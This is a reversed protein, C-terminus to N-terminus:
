DKIFFTPYKDSNFSSFVDLNYYFFDDEFDAKANFGYPTTTKYSGDEQLTFEIVAAKKLTVGDPDAGERVYMTFPDKPSVGSFLMDTTAKTEQPVVISITKLDKSVEGVVSYAGEPFYSKYSNFFPALCSLNISYPKDKVESLTLPWTSIVLGGTSYTVGKMTYDGFLSTLPHDLDSIKVPIVNTAGLTVDNSAADLALKFQRDGTFEGIHGLINVTINQTENGNFNLVGGALSYDVGSVASADVAKFSVTFAGKTNYATVPITLVGADENVTASTVDFSVFPATQYDVYPNCSAAAVVACAVAFTKVINKM